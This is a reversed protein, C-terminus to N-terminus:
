SSSGPQGGAERRTSKEGITWLSMDLDGGMGATAVAATACSIWISRSSLGNGAAGSPTAACTPLQPRDRAEGKRQSINQQPVRKRGRKEEKKEKEAGAEGSCNGKQRKKVRRGGEGRRADMVRAKATTRAEMKRKCGFFGTTSFSPSRVAM